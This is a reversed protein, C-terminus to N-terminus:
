LNETKERLGVYFNQVDNYIIKIGNINSHQPDTDKIRIPCFLGLAYRLISSFLGEAVKKLVSKPLVQELKRLSYLKSRLKSELKELHHSWKLDNSVWVGLLKEDESEETPSETFPMFGSFSVLALSDRQQKLIIM